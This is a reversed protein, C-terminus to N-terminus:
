HTKVIGIGQIVEKPPKSNKLKKLENLRERADDFKGKIKLLKEYNEIAKKNDGIKEYLMASYYLALINNPDFLFVQKYSTTAASLDGLKEQIAAMRLWFLDVKGDLAVAKRYSELSERLDGKRELIKGSLYQARVDKPKLKLGAEVAQKARDLLDFDDFRKTKNYEFYSDALQFQANSSTPRLATAGEFCIIAQRYNEKEKFELCKKFFSQNFLEEIEDAQKPNAAFANQYCEGVNQIDDKDLLQQCPALIAAADKPKRQCAASFSASVVILAVLCFKFLKLSWNNKRKGCQM